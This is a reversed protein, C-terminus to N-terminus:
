MDTKADISNGPPRGAAIPERPGPAVARRRASPCLAYGKRWRLAHGNTIAMAVGATRWGAPPPPPSPPPPPLRLRVRAGGGPRESGLRPPPPRVETRASSLRREICTAAVSGISEAKNARQATARKSSRKQIALLPRKGLLRDVNAREGALRVPEGADGRRQADMHHERGLSAAVGVAQQVHRLPLSAM